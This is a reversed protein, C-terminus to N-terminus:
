SRNWPMVAGAPNNALWGEVTSQHQPVFIPQPIKTIPDVVALLRVKIDNNLRFKGRIFEGADLDVSEIRGYASVINTRLPLPRVLTELQVEGDLAKHCLATLSDVYKSLAVSM